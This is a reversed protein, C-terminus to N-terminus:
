NGIPEPGTTLSGDPHAYLPAENFLAAFAAFEAASVMVWNSWSRGALKIRYAFGGNANRGLAYQEVQTPM